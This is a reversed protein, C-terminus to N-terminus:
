RQNSWCLMPVCGERRRRADSEKASRKWWVICLGAEGKAEPQGVGVEVVPVHGDLTDYGSAVTRAAEDGAAGGGARAAERAKVVGDVRDSEVDLVGSLNISVLHRLHAGM